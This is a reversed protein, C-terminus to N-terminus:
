RGRSQLWLELVTLIWILEGYYASHESSQKELAQDIFAPQIINRQRLATLATLTVDVLGPDNRMWRGFPLGFGHKSKNLTEPALFSAASQKFFHRLKQGPLKDDAAVTCSFDVLEKEILPFHVDVGALECMKSVKILDNDSLTFKWDMFLMRNLDSETHAQRFRHRLQELPQQKDVAKLVDNTFVDEPAFRHLFNYAQLRDPLPNEAQEIYSSAKSGLSIKGAPTHHFVGKLMTKFLGPLKEYPHFLKQKAYRSNGAFLEDGGDGALMVDVGQSKAHRACFYAALASSNGFPEDFASAVKAFNDRIFEPELYVSEHNTGFHRASIEAYETEDYGPENFGVSFTRAPNRHKALMGAVTSSDLGGSLFAACEKDTYHGVAKEINAMCQQQAVSLDETKQAFEPLYYTHESLTKANVNLNAGPSLKSIGSYITLPSPICHFYVYNYLAQPDLALDNDFYDEFDSMRSALFVNEGDKRWYVPITGLHDNFVMVTEASQDVIVILFQGALENIFARGSSTYKAAVDSACIPASSNYLRPSGVIKVQCSQDNFEDNIHAPSLWKVDVTATSMLAVSDNNSTGKVAVTDSSAM